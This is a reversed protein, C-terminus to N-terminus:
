LASYNHHASDSFCALFPLNPHCNDPGTIRQNFLFCLTSGGQDEFQPEVDVPNEIFLNHIIVNNADQVFLASEIFKAQHDMGILTTNSGIFIRGRKSQDARNVYPVGGSADIVGSVWIYKPRDGSEKIAQRLEEINKVYYSLEPDQGGGTTGGAESAWGIPNEYWPKHPPVHNISRM